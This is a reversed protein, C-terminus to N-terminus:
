DEKVPKNLVEPKTVARGDQNFFDSPQNLGKVKWIILKALVRTTIKFFSVKQEEPLSFKASQWHITDLPVGLDKDRTAKNNMFNHIVGIFPVKGGLTNGIPTNCCKAYWRYIGKQSLRVCACSLNIEPM